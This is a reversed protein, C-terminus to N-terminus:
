LRLDSENFFSIKIEKCERALIDYFTTNISIFVYQWTAFANKLLDSSIQGM